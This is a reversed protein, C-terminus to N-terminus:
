LGLGPVKHNDSGDREIFFVLSIKKQFQLSTRSYPLLSGQLYEESRQKGPQLLCDACAKEPQVTNGLCSRGMSIHLGLVPLVIMEHFFICHEIRFLTFHM